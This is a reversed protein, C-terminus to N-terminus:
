RYDELKLVERAMALAIPTANWAGSEHRELLRRAWARRSQPEHKRARERIPELMPKLRALEDAVRGPHAKPAELQAAAEPRPAQRALNRFEIANPAREPLHELAWAISGLDSGFADLEHAWLSRVSNADLGQFRATFDRGYTLTLRDFVREIAKTPFM